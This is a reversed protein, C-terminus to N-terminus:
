TARSEWQYRQLPPKHVLNWLRSLGLAKMDRGMTSLRSGNVKAIMRITCRQHRLSVAHQLQSCLSRGGRRIRVSRRDAIATAGVSSYRDLWKYDTHLSIGAETAVDAHPVGQQIHRLLMLERSIPSVREMVVECVRTLQM